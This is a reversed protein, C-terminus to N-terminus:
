EAGCEPCFVHVDWRNLIQEVAAIAVLTTCDFVVEGGCSECGIKVTTVAESM